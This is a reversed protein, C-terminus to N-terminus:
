CGGGIGKTEEGITGGGRRGGGSSDDEVEWRRVLRRLM